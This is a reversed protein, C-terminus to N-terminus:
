RKDHAINKLSSKLTGSMVHQMVHLVVWMRNCMCVHAAQMLGGQCILCCMFFNFTSYRRKYTCIYIHVDYLQSTIFAALKCSVKHMSVCKREKLPYFSGESYWFNECKFCAAFHNAKPKIMLGDVLLGVFDSLSHLKWVQSKQM